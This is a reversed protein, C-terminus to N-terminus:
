NKFQFFYDPYRFTIDIKVNDIERSYQIIYGYEKNLITNDLMILNEERNILQRNPFYQKIDALLREPVGTLAQHIYVNIMNVKGPITKIDVYYLSMLQWKEYFGNITNEIKGKEVLTFRNEGLVERLYDKNDLGKVIHIGSLTIFENQCYSSLEMLLSVIILFAFRRYTKM